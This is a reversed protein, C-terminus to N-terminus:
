RKIIGNNIKYENLGKVLDKNYVRDLFEGLEGFNRLYGKEILANHVKIEEELLEKYFEPYGKNINLIDFYQESTYINIIYYRFMHFSKKIGKWLPATPDVVMGNYLICCHRNFMNTDERYLMCYMIRVDRTNIEPPLSVIANFVNRYCENIKISDKNRNYVEESLRYNLRFSNM